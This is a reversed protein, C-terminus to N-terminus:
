HHRPANPYNLEGLISREVVSSVSKMSFYKGSSGVSLVVIRGTEKDGSFLAVGGSMQLLRGLHSPFAIAKSSALLSAIKSSPSAHTLPEINAGGVSILTNSIM